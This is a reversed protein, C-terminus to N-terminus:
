LVCFGQRLGTPTSAVTTAAQNTLNFTLTERGGAITAHTPDQRASSGKTGDTVVVDDATLSAGVRESFADSFTVDGTTSAAINDTIAVTPATTDRVAPCDRVTVLINARDATSAGGIGNIVNTIGGRATRSMPRSTRCRVGSTTWLSADWRLGAGTVSAPTVM